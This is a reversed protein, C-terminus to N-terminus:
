PKQPVITQREALELSIEQQVILYDIAIEKLEERTPRELNSLSWQIAQANAVPIIIEDRIADFYREPERIAVQGLYSDVGAMDLRIMDRVVLGSHKVGALTSYMETAALEKASQMLAQLSDPARALYAEVEYYSNVVNQALDGIFIGATEESIRAEYEERSEIRSMIGNMAATLSTQLNNMYIEQANTVGLIEAAGEATMRIAGDAITGLAEGVNAAFTTLGYKVWEPLWQVAQIGETINTVLGGLLAHVIDSLTRQFGDVLAELLMNILGGWLGGFATYVWNAVGDLLAMFQDLIWDAM